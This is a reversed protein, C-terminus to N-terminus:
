NVILVLTKANEVHKCARDHKSCDNCKSKAADSDVARLSVSIGLAAFKDCNYKEVVDMGKDVVHNEYMGYSKSSIGLTALRVLGFGAIGKVMSGPIKSMVENLEQMFTDWTLLGEKAAQLKAKLRPPVAMSFGNQPKLPNVLPISIPQTDSASHPPPRMQNAHAEHSAGHPSHPPPRAQNAHAGHSNVYLNHAPPRAQNPYAQNAGYVDYHPRAQNAHAEQNAGYADYPPRAQSNGYMNHPPPRAQNAHAEYNNGYMSHPPPRSQNSHAQNAGYADYYPRAQNAHTQNTGYADYPPRAQSSGYADYSPPPAQQPVSFGIQGPQVGAARSSEDVNSRELYGQKNDM